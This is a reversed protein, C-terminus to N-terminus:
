GVLVGPMGQMKSGYPLATVHPSQNSPELKTDATESINVLFASLNDADIKVAADFVSVKPKKPKVKKAEEVKGNEVLRENEEDNSDYKNGSRQFRCECCSCIEAGQSNLPPPDDIQSKKGAMTM